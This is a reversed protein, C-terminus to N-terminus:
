PRSMSSLQRRGSPSQLALRVDVGRYSALPTGSPIHRSHAKRGGPSRQFEGDGQVRSPVTRDSASQLAITRRIPSQSSPSRSSSLAGTSPVSSVTPTLAYASRRPSVSSVAEDGSDDVSEADVVAYRPQARVPSSRLFDGRSGSTYLAPNSRIVTTRENLALTVDRASHRPTRLSGNRQSYMAPNNHVFVGGNKSSEATSQLLSGITPVASPVAPSLSDKQKKRRRLVLLAIM